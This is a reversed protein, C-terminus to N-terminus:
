LNGKTINAYKLIIYIIYKISFILNEKEEEELMKSNTIFKGILDFRKELTNIKEKDEYKM